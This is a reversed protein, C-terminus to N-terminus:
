ERRPDGAVPRPRGSEFGGYCTQRPLDGLPPLASRQRALLSANRQFSRTSAAEILALLASADVDKGSGAEFRLKSVLESTRARAMWEGAFFVDGRLGRLPFFDVDQEFVLQDCLEVRGASFGQERVWLAVEYLESATQARALRQELDLERAWLELEFAEPLGQARAWGALAHLVEPQLGESHLLRAALRESPTLGYSLFQVDDHHISRVGAHSRVHVSDGRLEVVGMLEVGDRLVVRDALCIGNFLLWIALARM